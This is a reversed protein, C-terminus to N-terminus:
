RSGGALMAAQHRLVLSLQAMRQKRLDPRHGLILKVGEEAYQEAFSCLIHLRLMVAWFGGHHIRFYRIKSDNFLIDRRALNQSASRSEHHIVTASPDYVVKWGVSKIRKCWDLEESYMFYGEDLM